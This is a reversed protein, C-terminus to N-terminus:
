ELLTSCRGYFVCFLVLAGRGMDLLRVIFSTKSDGFRGTLYLVGNYLGFYLCHDRGSTMLGYVGNVLGYFMTYVLGGGGVVKRGFDMSYLEVDLNGYYDSVFVLQLCRGGAYHDSTAVRTKAGQYSSTYTWHYITYRGFSTVGQGVEGQVFLLLIVLGGRDTQYRTAIYSYYGDTQIITQLRYNGTKTGRLLGDKGFIYLDLGGLGVELGFFIVAM